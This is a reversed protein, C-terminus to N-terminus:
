LGIGHQAFTAPFTAPKRFLRMGAGGVSARETGTV